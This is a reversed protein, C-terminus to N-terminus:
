AAVAKGQAPRRCALVLLVVGLIVMPVSYVIGRTLWGFALYTGDDPVRVFEIGIRFVGYMLIFLGSVAMRPRPKQTWWVLVVFMVVGELFAEYLQNPHRPAGDYVIAWPVDTVKGWLEGNIFNGMRGFFLGPTVWPAVFDAVTFFAHGRSRAFLAMAAIVGLLGGHFSMGGKHIYFLTWPKAVLEGLNYFLMYGIRGGVFVGLAVYFVLDEVQDPRILSGPQRARWRLGLWGAIFGLVYMIGYWHVDLPGLSFAIPNFNPFEIM